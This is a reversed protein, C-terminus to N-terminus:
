SVTEPVWLAGSPARRGRVRIGVRGGGLDIVDSPMAVAIQPRDLGGGLGLGTVALEAARGPETKLIAAHRLAAEVQSSYDDAPGTKTLKETAAPWFRPNM